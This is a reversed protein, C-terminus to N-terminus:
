NHYKSPVNCVEIQACFYQFYNVVKPSSEKQHLINLRLFVLLPSKLVYLLLAFITRVMLGPSLGM